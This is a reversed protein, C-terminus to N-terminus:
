RGCDRKRQESVGAYGLSLECIEWGVLREKGSNFLVDYGVCDGAYGYFSIVNLVYRGNRWSDSV